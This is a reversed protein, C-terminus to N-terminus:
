EEKKRANERFNPMVGCSYRFCIRESAQNGAKCYIKGSICHRAPPMPLYIQLLPLDLLLIIFFDNRQQASNETRAKAPQSLTVGSGSGSGVGSGVTEFAVATIFRVGSKMEKDPISSPASFSASVFSVRVRVGPSIRDDPNLAAWM